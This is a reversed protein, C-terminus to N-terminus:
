YDIPVFGVYSAISKFLKHLEFDKRQKIRPIKYRKKIEKQELMKQKYLNSVDKTYQKECVSIERDRKREETFVHKNYKIIDKNIEQLNRYKNCLRELRKSSMNQDVIEFAQEFHIKESYNNQEDILDERLDSFECKDSIHTPFSRCTPCTINGTQINKVICDTHFSHGCQELSYSDQKQIEDFCIVCTDLVM